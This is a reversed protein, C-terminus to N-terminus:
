AVNRRAHPVYHELTVASTAGIHSLTSHPAQRRTVQLQIVDLREALPAVVGHLIETQEAAEM